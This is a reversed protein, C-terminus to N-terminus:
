LKHHLSTCADQRCNGNSQIVHKLWKNQTVCYASARSVKAGKLLLSPYRCNFPISHRLPFVNIPVVTEYIRWSERHKLSIELGTCRTCGPRVQPQSATLDFVPSNHFTQFGLYISINLNKSRKGSM